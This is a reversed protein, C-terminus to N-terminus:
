PLVLVIRFYDLYKLNIFNCSLRVLHSLGALGASVFSFFPKTNSSESSCLLVRALFLCVFFFLWEGYFRMFEHFHESSIEAPSMVIEPGECRSRRHWDETQRWLISFTM